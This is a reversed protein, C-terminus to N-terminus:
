FRYILGANALVQNGNVNGTSAASLVGDLTLNGYTLGVGASVTTNNEITDEGDAPATETGDKTSGLLVNQQISGRFTAWSNMAHELGLSVPLIMNKIKQGGNDIEAYTLNLGYYLDTTDNGLTRDTYGVQVAMPKINTSTTGDDFKLMGYSAGGYWYTRGLQRVNVGVNPAGTFKDTGSEATGLVEGSVGWSLDNTTQGYGFSLTTEKSDSTKKDSRSLGAYAGWNDRGYFVHIPNDQTPVGLESRFTAQIEDHHGLYFGFISDNEGRRFLGGEAKTDSTGDGAQGFELTMYQGLAKIDAAYTFISQSDVLHEAGQLAQVRAKTAHAQFGFFLPALSIVLAMKKM